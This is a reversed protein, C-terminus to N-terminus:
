TQRVHTRELANEPVQTPPRIESMRVDKTKTPKVEVAGVKGVGGHNRVPLFVAVYALINFALLAPGLRVNWLQNTKGRTRRSWRVFWTRLYLLDRVSKRVKVRQVGGNTKSVDLWHTECSGTKM